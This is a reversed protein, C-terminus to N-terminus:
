KLFRGARTELLRILQPDRYLYHDAIDLCIVRKSKLHAGFKQSLRNRHTKEMVFVIDAWDLQDGSLPTVADNNLGASDTEVRPWDAFIEEATPSRDKNAGCIFLAKTM